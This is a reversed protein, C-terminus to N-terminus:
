KIVASSDFPGSTISSTWIALTKVVLTVGTVCWDLVVRTGKILGDHYSRQTSDVRRGNNPKASM